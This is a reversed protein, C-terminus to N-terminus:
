GASDLLAGASTAVAGLAASVAEPWGGDRSATSTLDRCLAVAALILRPPQDLLDILVRSVAAPAVLADVARRLRDPDHTIERLYTECTEACARADVLCAALEDAYRTFWADDTHGM